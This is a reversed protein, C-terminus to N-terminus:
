PVIAGQLRTSLDVWLPLPDPSVFGFGQARQLGTITHTLISLYPHLHQLIALFVTTVIDTGRLDHIM